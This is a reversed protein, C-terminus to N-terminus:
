CSGTPLGGCCRFTGSAWRRGWCPWPTASAASIPWSARRHLRGDGAGHPEQAIASAPRTWATCCAARPSCRRRRRTSTSPRRGEAHRADRPRRFRRSAEARRPDLVDRPRPLSRVAQREGPEQGILGVRELVPRRTRRARRASSCGTGAIPLSAWTFGRRRERGHHRARGSLPTGAGGRAIEAPVSSVAGRGLSMAAFWPQKEDVAEAPRAPSRPPLPIGAREALMQLAERFEVGEMKMLFAFVDGGIDCVWCKFSQREPNVQLSPRSDDHWPCLGKFGRGERRLPLYEGVLDVIDVARKIQEKTDYSGISM